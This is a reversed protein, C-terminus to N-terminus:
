LGAMFEWVLDDADPLSEHGFDPYLVQRKPATIANYAAFQTSPPCVTDSLATVLLVQAQIRPALHHVDIYGLRTFVEAEREHRPDFRRFYQRLEQYADVALDMEWVRQYDSLFPYVPAALKLEPVLAACALTLGGGQSAGTAGVRKADVEDMGMVIRALTATDLFIQRFLLAEPADDLGRIIHGEQTNGRVGGPDESEGGQGRCDLAAVSYGRAAWGLMATWDPARGSYGHFFLLAPHPGAAARPRWYRAHIGAGGFGTFRLDFCEAFGGDFHAPTLEPRPDLEAAEALATAWYRDFDAPRPNRGPYQRLQDLPMEFVPM